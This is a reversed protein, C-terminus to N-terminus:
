YIRIEILINGDVLENEPIFHIQCESAIWNRSNIAIDIEGELEIQIIRDEDNPQPYIILKGKGNILGNVAINIGFIKNKDVKYIEYFEKNLQGFEKVFGEESLSEYYNARNINIFRFSAIIMPSIFLLGIILCVIAFIFKRKKIFVISLICLIIGIFFVFVMFLFLIGGLAM